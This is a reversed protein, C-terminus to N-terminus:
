TPSVNSILDLVSLSFFTRQKIKLLILVPAPTGTGGQLIDGERQVAPRSLTSRTCAGRGTGIGVPVLLWFPLFSGGLLPPPTCLSRPAARPARSSLLSPAPTLPQPSWARHGTSTQLVLLPQCPPGQVQLLQQLWRGPADWHLADCGARHSLM